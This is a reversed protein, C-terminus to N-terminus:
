YSDYTKNFLLNIGMLFYWHGFILTGYVEPVAKGQHPILTVASLGFIMTFISFFGYVYTRKKIMAIGLSFVGFSVGCYYIIALANHFAGYVQTIFGLMVLATFGVISLGMGVIVFSGKGVWKAIGISQIISLLGAIIMSANFLLANSSIGIDSMDNTHWNFWNESTTSLMLAITIPGLLGCISALLLFRDDTIPIKLKVNENSEM